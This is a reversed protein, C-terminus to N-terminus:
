ALLVSAYGVSNNADGYGLPTLERTSDTHEVTHGATAGLQRCAALTAAIAGGGCANHRRNSEPVVADIDYREIIDLLRRDNDHAWRYGVEGYGGPNFAYNPGYHTFDSSAIVAVPEPWDKLLRGIAAGWRAADPHPPVLCPVFRLADGFVHQMLPLQVELSHEHTHANADTLVDPLEAIADRLATDLPVDGLPTHWADHPDLTPRDMRVTHVSGTILFTTARTRPRLAAYTLGAV